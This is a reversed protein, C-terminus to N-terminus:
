ENLARERHLKIHAERRMEDKKKDLEDMMTYVAFCPPELYPHDSALYVEKMKCQPDEDM